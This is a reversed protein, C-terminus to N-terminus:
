RTCSIIVREYKLLVDSELKESGKAEVLGCFRLRFGQLAAGWVQLWFTFMEYLFKVFVQWQVM